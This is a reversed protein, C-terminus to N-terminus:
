GPCNGPDAQDIRSSGGHPVNFFTVAIVYPESGTNVAQYKNKPHELFVQGATYTRVRCKGGAIRESYLTLQGSQVAVVTTGPHSHWGSFGAPQVTIQNVAVDNGRRQHVEFSRAAQGRGILVSTFGSPDTASAVAVASVVLVAAMLTVLMTRKGFMAAERRNIGDVALARAARLYGPWHVGKSGRLDFDRIAREQTIAPITQMRSVM